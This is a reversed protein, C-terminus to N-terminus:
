ASEWCSATLRAGHRTVTWCPVRPLWSFTRRSLDPTFSAAAPVDGDLGLALPVRPEARGPIHGAEREGPRRSEPRIKLGKRPLLRGGAWLNVSPSRLGAQGDFDAEGGQRWSVPVLLSLYKSRGEWTRM